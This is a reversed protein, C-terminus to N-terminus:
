FKWSKSRAILTILVNFTLYFLVQFFIATFFFLHFPKSVNYVETRKATINETLLIQFKLFQTEKQLLYKSFTNFTKISKIQDNFSNYKETDIKKSLHRFTNGWINKLAKSSQIINNYEIKKSLSRTEEEEIITQIQDDFTLLMNNKVKDIIATEADPMNSPIELLNNLQEYIPYLENFETTYLIVNLASIEKLKTELRLRIEQLTSSLNKNLNIELNSAENEDPATSSFFLRQNKDFWMDVWDFSNMRHRTINGILKINDKEFKMTKSLEVYVLNLANNYLKNKKLKEDEVVAQYESFYFKNQKQYFILFILQLVLFSTLFIITKKSIM